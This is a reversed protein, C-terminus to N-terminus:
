IDRMEAPPYNIIALSSMFVYVSGAAIAVGTIRAKRMIPVWDDLLIVIYTNPGRGIVSSTCYCSYLLNSFQFCSLVVLGVANLLALLFCVKRITIALRTTVREVDPSKGKRTESIRVLITSIITLFMILISLGTYLTYGLSCCGLGVTPTFVVVILAASTVGCQLLLALVAARFMTWFVGPPFTTHKPAPPTAPQLLPREEQRFGTLCVGHTSCKGPTGVENAAALRDLAGFFDDILVHYWIVRSYNFTAPYRFEDRHLSCTDPKPIFLKDAEPHLSDVFAAPAPHTRASRAVSVASRQAARNGGVSRHSYDRQSEARSQLSIVSQSPNSLPTFGLEAVGGARVEDEHVLEHKVEGNEDAVEVILGTDPKRSAKPNRTRKQFRSNAAVARDAMKNAREKIKEATQEKINKAVRKVTKFNAHRLAAKVEGHSFIPVWLWGIVLCPMWVWITSAAQGDAAHGDTDHISVFADILTFIFPAVAWAISSAIAFSWTHRKNLRELIEQRWRDNSLASRIIRKDGTLELPTQQLALLARAVGAKERHPIRIARRYVAQANFSTIALSYAALAPSGVTMVVSLTHHYKRTLSSVLSSRSSYRGSVFDDVYNESGFPLQNVLALWPLLWLAFAQAFQRWNFAEASTGCREACTRYTLGVADAASVNHGHSDVGGTANPNTKFDALCQTFDVAAVLSTFFLLVLLIRASIPNM